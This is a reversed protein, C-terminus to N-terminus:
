VEGDDVKKISVYGESLSRIMSILDREFIPFEAHSGSGSKLLYHWAYKIRKWISQNSPLGMSASYEAHRDNMDHFEEWEFLLEFNNNSSRLRAQFTPLEGIIKLM